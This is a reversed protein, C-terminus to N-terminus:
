TNKGCCKNTTPRRLKCGQACLLAIYSNTQELRRQSVAGNNTQRPERRFAILHQRELIRFTSFVVKLGEYSPDYPVEPALSQLFHLRETLRLDHSLDRLCKYFSKKLLHQCRLIRFFGFVGLNQRRLGRQLSGLNEQSPALGWGLHKPLLWDSIQWSTEHKKM